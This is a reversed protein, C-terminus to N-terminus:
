VLRSSHAHAVPQRKRAKKRSRNLVLLQHKLLLSEAIVARTGGPAITRIATIILHALLVLWDRMGCVIVSTSPKRLVKFTTEISVNKCNAM